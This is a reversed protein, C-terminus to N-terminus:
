VGGCDTRTFRKFITEDELRREQNIIFGNNMYGQEICTFLATIQLIVATAARLSEKLEEDLNIEHRDYLTM